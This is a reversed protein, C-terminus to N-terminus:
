AARPMAVADDDVRPMPMGLVTRLAIIQSAEDLFARVQRHPMRAREAIWEAEHGEYHPYDRMVMRELRLLYMHWASLRTMKGHREIIKAQLRLRKIALIETPREVTTILSGTGDQDDDDPVYLRSDVWWPFELQVLEM